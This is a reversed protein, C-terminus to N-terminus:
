TVNIFAGLASRLSQKNPASYFDVGTWGHNKLVILIKEITSQSAALEEDTIFTLMHDVMETIALTWTSDMANDSLQALTTQLIDNLFHCQPADNATTEKPKYCYYGKYETNTSSPIVTSSTTESKIVPTPQAVQETTTTRPAMKKALSYIESNLANVFGRIQKSTFLVPKQKASLVRLSSAFERFKRYLLEMQLPENMSEEAKTKLDLLHATIVKDNTETQLLNLSRNLCEMWLLKSM